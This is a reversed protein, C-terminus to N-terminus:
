WNWGIAQGGGRGGGAGGGGGDKQKVTCIGIKLNGLCINTLNYDDPNYQTPHKYRRKPFCIAKIKVMWM